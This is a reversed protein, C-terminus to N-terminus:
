NEWINCSLHKNCNLCNVSPSCCLEINPLDSTKTVESLSIQGNCAPCRETLINWKKQNLKKNKKM